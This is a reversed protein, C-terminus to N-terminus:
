LEYQSIDLAGHFVGLIDIDGDDRVLYTIRYHGHLLIRVNRGSALYRQGAEPFEELIQAKDFIGQVTSEAAAPNDAEIYSHIDELWRLAELTWAIQAM